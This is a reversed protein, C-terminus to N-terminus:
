NSSVGEKGVHELELPCPIGAQRCWDKMGDIVQNRLDDFSLYDILSVNQGKIEKMHCKFLVCPFNYKALHYNLVALNTRHSDKVPQLQECRLYFLIIADLKDYELDESEESEASEIARNFEKIYLQLKEAIDARSHIIQYIFYIRGESDAVDRYFTVDGMGEDKFIRDVTTLFGSAKFVSNCQQPVRCFSVQNGRRYIPDKIGLLLANVRLYSEELFHGSTPMISSLYAFAAESSPSGEKFFPFDERDKTIGLKNYYKFSDYKESNKPPPTYGEFSSRSNIFSLLPSPHSLPPESSRLSMSRLSVGLEAQTFEREPQLWLGLSSIGSPGM